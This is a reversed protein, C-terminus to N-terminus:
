YRDWDETTQDEVVEVPSPGNLLLQTNTNIRGERETIQSLMERITTHSSTREQFNEFSEEGEYGEETIDSPSYINRFYLEALYPYSRTLGQRIQDAVVEPSPPKIGYLHSRYANTMANDISNKADIAVQLIKHVTNYLRSDSMEAILQRNGNSDKHTQLM